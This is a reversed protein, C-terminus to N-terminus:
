QCARVVREILTQRCRLCGCDGPPLRLRLSRALRLVSPWAARCLTPRDILKV